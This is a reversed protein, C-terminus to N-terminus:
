GAVRQSLIDGLGSFAGQLRNLKNRNPALILAIVRALLYGGLAYYFLISSAMGKHIHAKFFVYAFRIFMRGQADKGARMVPSELHQYRAAPNLLLRYKRSVRYSFDKDEGMGYNKYTETDFSFDKFVKARFSMSDGGLFDVEAIVKDPFPTEGYSVSFGSPLVVGERLGNAMFIFEMFWRLREKFGFRRRNTFFGGIGGVTGQQDAQYAKMVEAIYEPELVVDDDFFFIIDGTAMRIGMNRSETLGPRAKRTYHYRIGAARCEEAFPLGDLNGDDVVIIEHPRMTQDIISRVCDALERPRHYTPIIISAKDM